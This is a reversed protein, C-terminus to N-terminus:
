CVRPKGEALLMSAPSNADGDEAADGCVVAGGAAATAAYAKAEAM